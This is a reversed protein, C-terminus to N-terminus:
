VEMVKKYYKNLPTGAKKVLQEAETLRDLPVFLKKIEPCSAFVENLHKPLGGIFVQHKLLRARSLSPGIYILREISRDQKRINTM